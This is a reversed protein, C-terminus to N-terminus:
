DGHPQAWRAGAVGLDDEGALVEQSLHSTTCLGRKVYNTPCEWVDGQNPTGSHWTNPRFPRGCNGCVIKRPLRKGM